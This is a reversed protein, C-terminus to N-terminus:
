RFRASSASISYETMECDPLCHSCVSSNSNINRFLKSFERETWPDCTGSNSMKPLYWPICGISSETLKIGCEFICNSFTYGNYFELNGEDHFYCQRDVPKLSRIGNSSFIQSSIDLYHEMGPQILLSREKLAPFETPQGMFISFANFDHAVTGFSETNSHLDLVVKLGNQKGVKAPVTRRTKLINKSFEVSKQMKDVLSAYISSKLANKINLACCMGSDTPIKTFIEFCDVPVGALECSKILFTEDLGELHSCPLSAYWLIEFLNPYLDAMDSNKFFEKARKQLEDVLQNMNSQKEPNIFMDIMPLGREEALTETSQKSREKKESSEKNDDNLCERASFVENVEEPVVIISLTEDVDAEIITTTTSSTKTMTETTTTEAAANTPTTTTTTTAAPKTTTSTTTTTTSQTTTTTSTTTTLDLSLLCILNNALILSDKLGNLYSVIINTNSLTVAIRTSTVPAFLQLKM